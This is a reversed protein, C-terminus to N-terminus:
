NLNRFLRYTNETTQRVIQDLGLQYISALKEAVHIMYSPENRKGRFPVPPLYPSDTELLIQDLPISKVVEPLHSNKYTVVGGIGFYFNGYSQIKEVELQTGTFCHFVGSLADCNKRDLINFIEQFSDRAHIVIPLKYELAWDIQIEFAKKQEEIFTKDWYLDMGIEGIAIVDNNKLKPYIQDLQQEWDEKIYGPHLGLMPYFTDPFDRCLAFMPDISELDINPLLVKTINNEKFRHIGEISDEKFEPSYYHAHTDILKM